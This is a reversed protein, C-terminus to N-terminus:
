SAAPICITDRLSFLYLYMYLSCKLLKYIERAYCYSPEEITNELIISGYGSSVAARKDFMASDDHEHSDGAIGETRNGVAVFYGYMSTNAWLTDVM